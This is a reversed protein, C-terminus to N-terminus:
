GGLEAGGTWISAETSVIFKKSNQEGHNRMFM